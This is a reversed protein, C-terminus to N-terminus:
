VDPFDTAAPPPPVEVLWTLWPPDLLTSYVALERAAFFEDVASKVGFEGAPFNGDIYDHGAVIGGPRVKPFWAALDELVSPYDHRADIYVFDLSYDPIRPAAEISTMRWISSREAFPELRKRTVEYFSDHVTQQVNAIDIYNEPADERWPDVSILHRGRWYKLLVESYEGKQVGIEVGCGFLRRENLLIPLEVRTPVFALTSRYSDRIDIITPM